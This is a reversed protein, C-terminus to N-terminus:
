SRRPPVCFSVISMFPLWRSTISLSSTPASPLVTHDTAFVSKASTPPWRTGPLVRNLDGSWFCSRSTSHPSSRLSLASREVVRLEREVAGAPRGIHPWVTCICGVCGPPLPDTGSCVGSGGGSRTTCPMTPPIFRRRTASESAIRHITPNSSHRPQVDREVILERRVMVVRVAGVDDIVSAANGVFVVGLDVLVRRRAM